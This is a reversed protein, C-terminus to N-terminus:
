LKSRAKDKNLTKVDGRRVDWDGGSASHEAAEGALLRPPDVNPDYRYKAIDDDNAGKSRLYTDDILQQGTTTDGMLQMVADSLITAKRWQSKEGLKFNESALSEIITAPWLSNGTIGHQEGEAGAGLAVMTMGCKSMYYATKGAYAKYTPPLPPGMCVVRGWNGARMHPLCERTMIFAGRANIGQILDYKKTPTETIGQWWLASANNILIDVKGFTAVTLRVCEVCAAEDRLDVVVPLARAGLAEVEKAVTYITGPLTAQATASKAAVVVACGARALALCTERGIGRSGGTVIAVRGHLDPPTPLPM